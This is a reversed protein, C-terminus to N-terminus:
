PSLRELSNGGCVFFTNLETSLSVEAVLNFAPILQVSYLEVFSFDNSSCIGFEHVNNANEIESRSLVSSMSILTRCNAVNNGYFFDHAQRHLNFSQTRLDSDRFVFRKTHSVAWKKRLELKWSLEISVFLKRQFLFLISALELYEIQRLNWMRHSLKM